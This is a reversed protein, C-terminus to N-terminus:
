PTRVARWNCGRFSDRQEVFAAALFVAVVLMMNLGIQWSLKRVLRFAVNQRGTEGLKSVWRTYLNLYTKLLSPAKRDFLDVLRDSSKILYPSILATLGSVAVAIPYLFESTM